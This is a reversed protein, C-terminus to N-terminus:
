CELSGGVRRSRAGDRRGGGVCQREVEPSVFVKVTLVVLAAATWCVRVYVLEGVRGLVHDVGPDVLADM